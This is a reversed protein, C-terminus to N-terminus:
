CHPPPLPLERPASASGVGGGAPTSGIKPAGTRAAGLDSTSAKWYSVPREFTLFAGTGAIGKLKSRLWCTVSSRASERAYTGRVQAAGVM